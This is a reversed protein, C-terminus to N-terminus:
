IRHDLFSVIGDSIEDSSKGLVEEDGAWLFSDGYSLQTIRIKRLLPARTTLGHFVIPWSAYDLARCYDDRGENYLWVNDLILSELKVHTTLEILASQLIQCHRVILTTYGHQELLMSDPLMDFDKLTLHSFLAEKKSPDIIVRTATSPQEPGVWPHFHFSLRSHEEDDDLHAQCYAYDMLDQYVMNGLRMMTHVIPMKQREKPIHVSIAKIKLGCRSANRILDDRLFQEMSEAAYDDRHQFHHHTKCRKVSLSIDKRVAAVNEIADRIYSSYWADINDGGMLILLSEMESAFIPNSSAQFFKHVHQLDLTCAYEKFTALYSPLALRALRKETLRLSLVEALGKDPEALALDKIVEVLLEDPLDTLNTGSSMTARTTHIPLNVRIPTANIFVELGFSPSARHRLM